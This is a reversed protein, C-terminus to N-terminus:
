LINAFSKLVLTRKIFLSRNHGRVPSQIYEYCRAPGVYIVGRQCGEGFICRQGRGSIRGHFRWTASLSHSEQFAAVISRSILPRACVDLLSTACFCLLRLWVSLMSLISQYYDRARYKWTSPMGYISRPSTRRSSLNIEPTRQLSSWAKRASTYVRLHM